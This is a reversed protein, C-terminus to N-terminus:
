QWSRAPRSYGIIAVKVTPDAAHRALFDNQAATLGDQIGSWMSPAGIGGATSGVPIGGMTAAWPTNIEEVLDGLRQCVRSVIDIGPIGGTGRFCYTPIRPGPPIVVPKCKGIQM